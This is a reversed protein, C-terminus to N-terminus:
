AGKASLIEMLIQLKDVNSIVISALILYLVRKASSRFETNKETNSFLDIKRATYRFDTNKAVRYVLGGKPDGNGTLIKHIDKLTDKMEDISENCGMNCYSERRNDNEM